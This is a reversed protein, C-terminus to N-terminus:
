ANRAPLPPTECAACFYCFVDRRDGLDGDGLDRPNGGSEHDLRQECLLEGTAEESTTIQPYRTHFDCGIILM